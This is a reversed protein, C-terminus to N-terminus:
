NLYRCGEFLVKLREQASSQADLWEMAREFMDHERDPPERHGEADQSVPAKLLQYLKRVSKLGMALMLKREFTTLCRKKANTMHRHREAIEGRIRTRISRRV